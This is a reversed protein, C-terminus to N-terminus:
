VRERCSARGIGISVTLGGLTTKNLTQNNAYLALFAVVVAFPISVGVIFTSTGSRLFLYLVFVALLGGVLAANRVTRTSVEVDRGQDRIETFTVAGAFRTEAEAMIRRAEAIIALADAGSRKTVDFAITSRGDLLVTFEPETNVYELTAVDRLVVPTNGQEGIVLRRLKELSEYRGVSRLSMQDGRYRLDGAPVSSDAVRRLQIVQLMDIERGALRAPDVVVQLERHRHGKLTVTAVGGIQSLAPVLEDQAYRALEYPDTDSSLSVTFIPLIGSSVKIIRPPGALDDPLDPLVNNIRERVEPLKADVDTEWSFEMTITSASPMSSSSMRTLGSTPALEDELVSTVEEEMEAPGVGPYTTLVVLTPLSSDPILESTLSLLAVVGFVLVTISVITVIVPHNIAFDPIRM